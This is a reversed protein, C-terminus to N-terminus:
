ERRSFPNNPDDYDDLWLDSDDSDWVEQDGEGKGNDKGKKSKVIRQRYKKSHLDHAIHSRRNKMRRRRKEREELSSM